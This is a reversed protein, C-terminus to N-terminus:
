GDVKEVNGDTSAPKVQRSKFQSCWEAVRCFNEACRMDAAQRKVVEGGKSSAYEVADEQTDFVRSARKADANKMVAWTPLEGWRDEMTCEPLEAGAEHDMEAMRHAHVQRLVYADQEEEPWVKIPVMQIAAQPYTPDAKARWRQWDRIIACISLKTPSIGKNHRVLYAYMNQQAEWEAKAGGMGKMAQSATCVKYDTIAYGGDKLHEQVDIAGSILWGDVHCYLREETIQDPSSGLDLIHHVASGLLSFWEESIDNEMDEWHKKRLLDIRPSAILQTVSRDVPGKDYKERMIKSARVIAEPLGHNNSFKM